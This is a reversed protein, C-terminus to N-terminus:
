TNIVYKAQARAGVPNNKAKANQSAVRIADFKVAPRLRGAQADM